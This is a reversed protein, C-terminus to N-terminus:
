LRILSACPSGNCRASAYASEVTKMHEIEAAGEPPIPIPLYSAPAELALLLLDDYM